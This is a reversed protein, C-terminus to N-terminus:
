IQKCKGSRWDDGIATATRLEKLKATLAEPHGCICDRLLTVCNKVYLTEAPAYFGCGMQEEICSAGCKGDKDCHNKLGASAPNTKEDTM